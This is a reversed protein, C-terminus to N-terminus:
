PQCTHDARCVTSCCDSGLNCTGYVTCGGDIPDVLSPDYGCEPPVQSVYIGGGESKPAFLSWIIHADVDNLIVGGAAYAGPSSGFSTTAVFGGRGLDPSYWEVGNKSTFFACKRSAVVVYPRRDPGDAFGSFDGKVIQKPTTLATIVTDNPQDEEYLGDSAIIFLRGSAGGADNLYSAFMIDQITNGPTASVAQKATCTEGPCLVLEGAKTGLLQGNGVFVHATVNTIDIGPDATFPVFPAMPDYAGGLGQRYFGDDALWLQVGATGYCSSGTAVKGAPFTVPQVTPMAMTADSYFTEGTSTVLGECLHDHNLFRLIKGTAAFAPSPTIAASHTVEDLKMTYFGSPGAVRYTQRFSPDDGALFGPHDVDLVRRTPTGTAPPLSAGDAAADIGGDKNTPNGDRCVPTSATMPACGTVEYLKVVNKSLYKSCAGHPLAITDGSALWGHEGNELPVFCQGPTLCLGTDPTALALNLKSLDRGNAHLTCANMDFGASVDLAVPKAAALCAGVDFCAASDGVLEPKFDPLAASDIFNDKCEGDVSTETPDPCLTATFVTPDLERAAGTPTALFPTLDGAVSGDDLYDLPLRLYAIRGSRPVTTRFDHLVRPKSEQYAILRIRVTANPDDPEIIALTAPLDLTGDPKVRGLTNFRLADNTFVTVSVYSVDKPVQMRTDTGLVLGGKEGKSGSCALPTTLIGLCMALFSLGLARYSRGQM